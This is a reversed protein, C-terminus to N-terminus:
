AFFYLAPDKKQRLLWPLFMGFGTTGSSLLSCPWFTRYTSRTCNVYMVSSSCLAAPCGHTWCLAEVVGVMLLPCFPASGARMVMFSMFSMTTSPMICRAPLSNKKYYWHIFGLLGPLHAPKCVPRFDQSFTCQMPLLSCCCCFESPSPICNNVTMVSSSAFVFTYLYFLIGLCMVEHVHPAVSKPFLCGHCRHRRSEPFQILICKSLLNLLLDLIWPLKKPFWAYYQYKNHMADILWWNVLHM